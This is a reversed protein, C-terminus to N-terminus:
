QPPRYGPPHLWHNPILSSSGGKVNNRDSNGTISTANITASWLSVDSGALNSSSVDNILSQAAAASGGSMNSPLLRQPAPYLSEVRERIGVHHFRPSFSAAANFGSLLPLISSSSSSGAVNLYQNFPQSTTLSHLTAMSPLYGGGASAAAAAALQYYPSTSHAMTLSASPNMFNSHPLTLSNSLSSSDTKGRKAKRSAGGVPINRFTGGQTWYRKCTKCFHRPQSLSYNNFYCFKTNTSNCRPCKQQPKPPVALHHIKTNEERRGPDHEM